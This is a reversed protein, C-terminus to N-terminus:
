ENKVKELLKELSIEKATDSLVFHIQPIFQRRSKSAIHRRVNKELKKIRPFIEKAASEPFVSIFIEAKDSRERASVEGISVFVGKERQVNRQLFGAIERKLFSEFREKM